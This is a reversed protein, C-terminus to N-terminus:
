HSFTGFILLHDVPLFNDRGPSQTPTVHECVGRFCCRDRRNNFQLGIHLPPM